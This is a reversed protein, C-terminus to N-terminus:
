PIWLPYYYDRNNNGGTVNSLIRTTLDFTFIDHENGIGPLLFGSFVLRTGSPALNPSEAYAIGLETLNYENMQRGLSNFVCILYEVDMGVVDRCITVIEKGDASVSPLAAISRDIGVARMSEMVCDHTGDCVIDAWLLSQTVNGYLLIQSKGPVWTAGVVTHHVLLDEYQEPVIDELDEGTPIHILGIMPFPTTPVFKVYLLYEKDPSWSMSLITEGPALELLPSAGDGALSMTTLWGNDSVYAVSEGDPSIALPGEGLTDSLLQVSSGDSCGWLLNSRLNSEWYYTEKYIISGDQCNPRTGPPTALLDTASPFPVVDMTDVTLAGPPSGEQPSSVSVVPLCGSLLM